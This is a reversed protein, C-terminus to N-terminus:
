TMVYTRVAAKTTAFSNFMALLSTDTHYKQNSWMKLISSKRMPFVVTNHYRCSLPMNESGTYEGADKSDPSRSGYLEDSDALIMSLM